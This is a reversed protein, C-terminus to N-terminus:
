ELSLIEWSKLLSIANDRLILASEAVGELALVRPTGPRQGLPLVVRLSAVVAEIGLLERSCSEGTLPWYCLNHRSLASVTRLLM